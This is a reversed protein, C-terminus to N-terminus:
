FKRCIMNSIGSAALRGDQTWLKVHGTIVGRSAHAAMAQVFLWDDEESPEHFWASLELSAAMYDPKEKARVHAPWSGADIWVLARGKDVFPDGGSEFGRFRMWSEFVEGQPDPVTHPLVFRGDFNQMFPASSEMVILDEPPKRDPMRWVASEPGDSSATTWVQAQLLVAGDQLVRVAFCTSVKGERLTEVEVDVEDSRARSLYQCSLSLPRHGPPALRGVARLAVAAMYGGNPGWIEWNSALRGKFSPGDGELATDRQLAGM